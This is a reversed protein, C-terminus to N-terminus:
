TSRSDFPDFEDRGVGSTTARFAVVRILDRRSRRRGFGRRWLDTVGGGDWLLAPADENRVTGVLFDNRLELIEQRETAERWHNREFLLTRGFGHRILHEVVHAGATSRDDMDPSLSSDEILGTLFM